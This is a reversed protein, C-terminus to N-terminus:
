PQRRIAEEFAARINEPPVNPQINHVQTFVYGGGPAFIDVNRRVSERVQEPAAQDLIGQTSVGGGWFTIDAGFERKLRAPSMGEATIQVPNLADVGIEILDPIFESVAGCSHMLVKKGNKKVLGILEAWYPKILRRYVNPNLLPGQQTGLDDTFFVMDFWPGAANLFKAARDLYAAHLRDLIGRVMPEDTMLDMMFQEYGRLLQGAQLYHMRWCAVVLRDTSEYLQRARAGFEDLSEDMVPSWDWREFVATHRDLDDPTQAEALAFRVPDFYYGDSPRRAVVAGTRDRLVSSGDPQPEPRWREPVEVEVGFGSDWLRWARPYYHLAVADAGLVEQVEPDPLVVHQSPTSLRIRRPEIHLLRRLGHYARVHASSCDTGGFDVPVRDPERHALATLIRQRGTM